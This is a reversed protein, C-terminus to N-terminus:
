ALDGAAPFDVERYIEPLSHFLADHMTEPM